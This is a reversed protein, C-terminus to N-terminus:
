SFGLVSKLVWLRIKRKKVLCNLGLDSPDVIFRLIRVQLPNKPEQSGCHGSHDQTLRNIISVCFEKRQNKSRVKSKTLPRFAYDPPALSCNDKPGILTCTEKSQSQYGEGAKENM